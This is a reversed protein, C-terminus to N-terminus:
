SSFQEEDSLSALCFGSKAKFHRQIIFFRLLRGAGLAFRGCQLSLLFIV